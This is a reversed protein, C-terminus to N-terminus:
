GGALWVLLRPSVYTEVLASIVLVPVAIAVTAFTAALLEHWHGRRAALMWAALPLFLAMLEPLAHPLLGILLTVPAIELQHAVEASVLGLTLAQTFLSFVTAGVVFGIALPGARDHIWRWTGSYRQATIPLSSGAIFGAVCAFGHLALVLSNRLLIHAVDGSGAPANIGPLLLRTAGPTALTGIVGVAGLLGIAVLLSAGLWGRLVPWPARNWAALTRRTDDMGQVLVLDDLRVRMGQRMPM